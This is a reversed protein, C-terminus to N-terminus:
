KNNIYILLNFFGLKKPVFSFKNGMINPSYSNNNIFSHFSLILFYYYYYFHFHSFFSQYFPFLFSFFLSHPVLFMYIYLPSSLSLFLLYCLIVRSILISRNNRKQRRRLSIFIIHTNIFLVNFIYM